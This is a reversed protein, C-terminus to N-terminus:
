YEDALRAAVKELQDALGDRGSAILHALMATVSDTHEKNLEVSQRQPHGAAPTRWMSCLM